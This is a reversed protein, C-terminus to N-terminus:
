KCCPVLEETFLSPGSIEMDDMTLLNGRSTCSFKSIEEYSLEYDWMNILAVRGNWTQLTDFGGVSSVCVSFCAYHASFM